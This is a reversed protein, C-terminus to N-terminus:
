FPLNKPDAYQINKEATLNLLFFVVRRIPTIKFYANEFYNIKEIMKETSNKIEKRTM